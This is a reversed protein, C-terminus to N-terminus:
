KSKLIEKENTELSPSQLKLEKLAKQAKEDGEEAAKKYWKIAEDINKDVYTGNEYMVALNYQALAYGLKASKMFYQFAFYYDPQAQSYYKLGKEYLSVAKEKENEKKEIKESFVEQMQTVKNKSRLVEEEYEKLNKLADKAKEDGEEAAKKYREISGDSDEPSRFINKTKKNENSNNKEKTEEIELEKLAEKADEDGQDASKKYWYKAQEINEETGEGNEYMAGLNYQAQSNGQEASKKFLKFAKKYKKQNYFSNATEFMGLENSNNKEKTEEIEDKKIENSLNNETSEINETEQILNNDIEFHYGCVDCVFIKESKTEIVKYLLFLLSCCIILLYIGLNILKSYDITESKTMTMIIPYLPTNSSFGIILSIIGFLIGGLNIYYLLMIIANYSASQNTSINQFGMFIEYLKIIPFSIIIIIICFGLLTAFISFIIDIGSINSTSFFVDGSILNQIVGILVLTLCFLFIALGFRIFIGQLWLLFKLGFDNNKLKTISSSKCKPCQLKM